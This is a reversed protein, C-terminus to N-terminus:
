CVVMLRLTPSSRLQYIWMGCPTGVPNYHAIELEIWYLSLDLDKRDPDRIFETITFGSM